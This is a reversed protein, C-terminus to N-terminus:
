SVKQANAWAMVEGALWRKNTANFTNPDINTATYQQQSRHDQMSQHAGRIKRRTTIQCIL